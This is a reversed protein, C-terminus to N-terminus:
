KTRSKPSRKSVRLKLFQINVNETSLLAQYQKALANKRPKLFASMTKKAGAAETRCSDSFRGQLEPILDTVSAIHFAGAAIFLVHDTKVPGHERTSLRVKSSRCFTASCVRAHCMPRVKAAAAQSRTSKM